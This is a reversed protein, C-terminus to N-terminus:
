AWDQTSPTAATQLFRSASSCFLAHYVHPQLPSAAERGAREWGAKGYCSLEKPGPPGKFFLQDLEKIQCFFHFSEKNSIKDLGSNNSLWIQWVSCKLTQTGTWEVEGTHWFCPLREICSQTLKELSSYCIAMFKSAQLLLCKERVTIFVLLGLDLHCHETRERHVGPFFGKSSELRWCDSAIESM